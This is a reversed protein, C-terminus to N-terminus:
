IGNVMNKHLPRLVGFIIILMGAFFFVSSIEFLRSYAVTVDHRFIYLMLGYVLPSFADGVETSMLFISLYHGASSEPVISGMYSTIVTYYSGFSMGIISAFILFQYFAHTFSLIFISIGSIVPFIALLLEKDLRDSMIGIGVSAIASLFLIVTGSIAIYIAANSINLDYEFYYYYFFVLGASGITIFFNAVSMYKFKSSHMRSFFPATKGHSIGAPPIFDEGRVTNFTIAATFLVAIIIAIIGYFLLHMGLLLGSLGFGLASGALTFFGNIGSSTGRQGEPIVDSILPQYAGYAINSGIEILFYVTILIIISSYNIIFIVLSLVAISSGLIIMPRRRGIRTHLKDTVTGSLYNSALGILIGSFAVAGLVLSQLGRAVSIEIAFPLFLSEFSIWLYNNGLYISNMGFIYKFSKRSARDM